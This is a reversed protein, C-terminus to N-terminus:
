GGCYLKFMKDDVKKYFQFHVNAYLEAIVTDDHEADYIKDGEYVENGDADYGILQALTDPVIEGHYGHYPIGTWMHLTGYDFEITTYGTKGNKDKWRFKIPVNKM